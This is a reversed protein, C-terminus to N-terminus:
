NSEDSCVCRLMIEMLSFFPIPKCIDSGEKSKEKEKEGINEWSVDADPIRLEQTMYVRCCFSHEDEIWAIPMAESFPSTNM